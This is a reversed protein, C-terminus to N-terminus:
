TSVKLVTWSFNDFRVGEKLINKFVFIKLFLKKWPWFIIKFKIQCSCTLICSLVSRIGFNWQSQIFFSNKLNNKFIMGDALPGSATDGGKLWINESM